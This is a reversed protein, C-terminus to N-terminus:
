EDRLRPRKELLLQIKSAFWLRGHLQSNLFDQSPIGELGLEGVPLRPFYRSELNM